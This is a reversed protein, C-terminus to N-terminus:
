DVFYTTVKKALIRIKRLDARSLLILYQNTVNNSANADAMTISNLIWDLQIKCIFHEIQDM